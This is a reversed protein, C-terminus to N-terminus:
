GMDVGLLTAIVEIEGYHQYLHTLGFSMWCRGKTWGTYNELLGAATPHALGEEFLIQRLRDVEMVEDLRELDLGNVIEITRARVADSYGHLAGLAIRQSLEDVEALSMGSGNHRLPVNMREMWGGQDLIQPRDVVFRNMGADEVRTLHWLIWAISNVKPHPRQRMLDEPVLEWMGGLYFDYIVGHRQLFLQLANM